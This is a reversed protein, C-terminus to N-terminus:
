VAEQELLLKGDQAPWLNGIVPNYLTDWFSVIQFACLKHVM